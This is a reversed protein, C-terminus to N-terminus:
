GSQLNNMVLMAIMRGFKEIVVNLMPLNIFILVIQL